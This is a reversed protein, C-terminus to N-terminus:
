IAAFKRNQGKLASVLSSGHQEFLRKVSKADVANITINTGGNGIGGGALSQRLPNAIHAPLVMEEQHLQTVPNVGSPIDFGGSAAAVALGSMVMAMTEAYVAPAMSWGVVPIAAVSAAAAGAAMAADAPITAAATTKKTAITTASAAAETTTQAIGLAAMLGKIVTTGMIWSMVAQAVMNAVMNAMAAGITPLIGKMFSSFSLTGQMMKSLASAFSNQLSDFMSKFPAFTSVRMQNSIQAMKLSHQQELEEIERNIERQKDVDGANLELEKRYTELKIQYRREEIERLKELKEEERILGMEQMTEIDSQEIELANLRMTEKQQALETEIAITKQMYEKDAALKDLLAQRYEQTDEKYVAAIKTFIEQYLDAKKKLNEKDLDAEFKLTEIQKNLAERDAEIKLEAVKKHIEHYQDKFKAGMSAVISLKDQWFALEQAKSFENFAGQALKMQALDDEFSKILSKGEKEANGSSKYSKTGAGIGEGIQSTASGKDMNYNFSNQANTAIAVIDDNHRKIDEKLKAFGNNWADYSAQSFLPKTSVDALIKFVEILEVVGYYLSKIVIKLGDVFLYFYAMSKRTAEIAAPAIDSFWNALETLRPMVAESIVKQIGAMADDFDNMAARYEKYAKVNKDTITLNLDENKKKADELLESNLKLFKLAEQGSRGFLEMAATNRDTGEKYDKLTSVANMFITRQNLLEGNAGRTKVGMENLDTENEKLKMSLKASAGAFEDVSIYADNLATRFNSAESVSEGLIASLKLTEGSMQKQADIAAKFMKGGELVAGIALLASNFKLFANQVSGFAGSISSTANKVASTAENLGNKLGDIEATIKVKADAEM